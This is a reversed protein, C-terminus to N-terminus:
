KIASRIGLEKDIQHLAELLKDKQELLYGKYNKYQCSLKLGVFYERSEKKPNGFAKNYDSLIKMGDKFNKFRDKKSSTLRDRLQKWYSEPSAEFDIKAVSMWTGIQVIRPAITLKYEQKTIM